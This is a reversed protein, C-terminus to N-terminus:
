NERLNTKGKNSKGSQNLLNCVSLVLSALADFFFWEVSEFNFFDYLSVSRLNKNM